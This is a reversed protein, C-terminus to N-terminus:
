LYKPFQLVERGQEVFILPQYHVAREAAEVVAELSLGSIIRNRAPFNAPLPTTGMPFGFNHLWM